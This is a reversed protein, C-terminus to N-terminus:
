DYLNNKCNPKWATLYRYMIHVQSLKITKWITSLDTRLLVEFCFVLRQWSFCYAEGFVFCHRLDELNWQFLQLGDKCCMVHDRERYEMLLRSLSSIKVLRSTCADTTDDIQSQISKELGAVYFVWNGRNIMRTIISSRCLSM